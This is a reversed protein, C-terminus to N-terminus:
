QTSHVTARLTVGAKLTMEGAAACEMRAVRHGVNWAYAGLGFAWRPHDGAGDPDGHYDSLYERSPSCGVFATNREHTCRRHYQAKRNRTAEVENAHSRVRM